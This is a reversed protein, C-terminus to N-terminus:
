GRWPGTLYYGLGSVFGRIERGLFRDRPYARKLLRRGYWLPLGLLARRLNAIRRTREFQVLLAAAHGRMYHFLQSALGEDSARHYHFAVATPEYRCAYDNALLRYWYESDGSCGARGVDLREDFGGVKDFVERRFAMSAGAGIEWAPFTERRARFAEPTFEKREYGRAFSWFTEFHHQAPTELVAPLVLGTVAGIRPADFAAVINELWAPHLLVDDDTYVVIEGRAKAAGTNRAYDLGPRDERVYVANAALANLRTVDSTSANDVVIVELPQLTQSPLSSLCRRLEDPRDRTCIVVSATPLARDQAPPRAVRPRPAPPVRRVVGDGGTFVHGVPLGESWFVTMWAGDDPEPGDALHRHSVGPTAVGAGIPTQPTDSM